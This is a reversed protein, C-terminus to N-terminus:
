LNKAAKTSKTDVAKPVAKQALVMLDMPKGTRTVTDLKSLGRLLFRTRWPWKPWTSLVLRFFYHMCFRTEIVEFGRERLMDSLQSLQYGERVHNTDAVAPPTPVTIVLLGGPTLVRDLEDLAQGDDPIHELVESCLILDVSEAALPVHTLSAGM